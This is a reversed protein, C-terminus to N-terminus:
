INFPPNLVKFRKRYEYPDDISIFKYFSELKDFDTPFDEKGEFM